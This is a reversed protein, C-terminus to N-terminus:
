RLFLFYNSKAYDQDALDTFRLQVSFRVKNSKNYGSKHVLFQSFVLAQGSKMNVTEFNFEKDNLSLDYHNKNLIKKRINKELNVNFKGNKGYLYNKYGLHSGRSVKLAGNNQSVTQLPIWITLSNKSGCNFQYDQHSKFSFKPDDPMDIRVQPRTGFTPNKLGLKKALYIFEKFSSMEYLLPDMKIIDYVGTWLRRDKSNYLKIIDNDNKILKRLNIKSTENFISLFRKRLKKIITKNELDHVLFGNQEFAKISKKKM